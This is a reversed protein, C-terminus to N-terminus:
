CSESVLSEAEACIAFGSMNVDVILRNGSPDSTVTVGEGALVTFQPGGIGNIARLTENCRLGGELLSSGAPPVEGVYRPLQECPEGDGAGIEALVTISNDVLSQRVTANFGAAIVVDGVVCASSVFLQGTTTEEEGCAIPITARTRDDNAVGFRVVFSEVLSQLRAPEITETCSIVGDTPLAATLKALRGTTIFGSWLPEDCPDYSESTSGSQSSHSLGLTGSDVFYTKYDDDDVHRTFVLPVAHLEPADSSFEFYFFSGARRVASLWVRHEAYEFRSKPGLVFGADVVLATPLTVTRTFPYARNENENFFSMSM